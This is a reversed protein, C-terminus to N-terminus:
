GGYHGINRGSQLGLCGKVVDWTSVVGHPLQAGLWSMVVDRLSATAATSYAKSMLTGPSPTACKVDWKIPSPLPITGM